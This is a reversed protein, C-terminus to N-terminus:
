KLMAKLEAKLEKSRGGRYSNANAFFYNVISRGSDMIYNDNITTLSMMADLYPVAGFYIKGDKATAKWDKKIDNAIEYLPRVRAKAIENVLTPM